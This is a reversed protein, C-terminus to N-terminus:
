LHLSDIVCDRWYESYDVNYYHRGGKTMMSCPKIQKFKPVHWCPYEELYYWISDAILEDFACLMFSWVQSIVITRCSTCSRYNYNVWACAMRGDCCTDCSSPVTTCNNRGRDYYMTMHGFIPGQDREEYLWEDYQRKIEDDDDNHGSM